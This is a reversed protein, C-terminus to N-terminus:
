VKSAPRSRLIAAAGYGVVRATEGTITGSTAYCLIRAETAGLDRCATLLAMTPGPGCMSIARQQITTALAGADLAAIAALAFRDLESAIAHPEYHTLDTSAIIVTDNRTVMKALAQGVCQSTNLDQAMMSIPVIPVADGYLNQLFPLQVEISHEQLHGLEDEQAVDCRNLFDHIFGRDLPVRGLPTEWFTHPAVAVAASGLAHHNPGLIVLRTPRPGHALALYSHAAVPGSYVLGAHPCVLGLPGESSRLAVAPLVGPGVRHRYSDEILRLLDLRASPYFMGSVAPSRVNSTRAM